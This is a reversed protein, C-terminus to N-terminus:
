ELARVDDLPEGKYRTNLRHVVSSYRINSITIARAM